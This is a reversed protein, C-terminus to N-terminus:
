CSVFYLVFLSVVVFSVGYSGLKNLVDGFQSPIIGDSRSWGRLDRVRIDLEMLSELSASNGRQGMPGKLLCYLILNLVCIRFGCYSPKFGNGCALPTVKLLDYIRAM